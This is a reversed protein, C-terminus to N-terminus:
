LKEKQLDLIFKKDSLRRRRNFGTYKQLKGRKM